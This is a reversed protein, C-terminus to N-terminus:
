RAFLQFSFFVAVMAFTALLIAMDALRDDRHM